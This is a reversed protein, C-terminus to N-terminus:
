NPCETLTTHTRLWLVTEGGELEVIRYRRLFKSNVNLANSSSHHQGCTYKGECMSNLIISVLTLFSPDTTLPVQCEQLPGSNQNGASVYCRLVIQLELEPSRVDEKQSGLDGPM